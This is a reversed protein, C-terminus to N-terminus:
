PNGALQRRALGVRGVFEAIRDAHLHLLEVEGPFLYPGLAEPDLEDILHVLVGLAHLLRDGPHPEPDSSSSPDPALGGGELVPEVAIAPAEGSDSVGASAHHDIGPLVTTAVPHDPGVPFDTESRGGERGTPSDPGPQQLVGQSADDLDAAPSITRVRALALGAADGYLDHERRLHYRMETLSADPDVSSVLLSFDCRDCGIGEEIGDQLELAAGVPVPATVAGTPSSGLRKTAPESGGTSTTDSGDVPAHPSVGSPSGPVSEGAPAAPVSTSSPDGADAATGIADAATENAAAREAAAAQSICEVCADTFEDDVVIARHLSTPDCARCRLHGGQVDTPKVPQRCKECSASTAPREMLAAHAEAEDAECAQCPKGHDAGAHIRDPDCTTCRYQAAKITGVDLAVGCRECHKHDIEPHSLTGGARRQVTKRSVGALQAVETKSHREEPPLNADDALVRDVVESSVERTPRMGLAVMIPAVRTEWWATFSEHGLTKWAENAKIWDFDAKAAHLNKLFRLERQSAEQQAYPKAGAPAAPAVVALGRSAFRADRNRRAAEGPSLKEASM